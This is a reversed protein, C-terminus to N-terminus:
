VGIIRSSVKKMDKCGKSNDRKENTNDPVSDQIIVIERVM